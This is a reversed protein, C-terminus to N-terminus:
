GDISCGRLRAAELAQVYISRNSDYDCFDLLDEPSVWRVCTVEGEQARARCADTCGLYYTVVKRVLRGRDWFSYRVVGVTDVLGVDLGTEEKVERVAAQRLSEGPDVKGKPLAWKGFRDKILLFGRPGRVAAGAALQDQGVPDYGGDSDGAGRRAVGEVDESM